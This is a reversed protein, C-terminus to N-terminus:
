LNVNTAIYLRDITSLNCTKDVLRCKNCILTFDNWSIIPYESNLVCTLYINKIKSYHKWLVEKVKELEYENNKIIRTIKSYSFDLDFMKRLLEESDERFNRFVSRM